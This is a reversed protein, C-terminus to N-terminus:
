PLLWPTLVDPQGPRRCRICLPGPPVQDLEFRGEADLDLPVPDGARGCLELRVGAVPEVQGLLGDITVECDISLEGSRYRVQRERIDGTRSPVLSDASDSVLEALLDDTPVWDFAAEAAAVTSAPVPTGDDEAIAARLITILEGDTM